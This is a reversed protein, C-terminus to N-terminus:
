SSSTRRPFGPRFSRRLGWFPDEVITGECQAPIQELLMRVPMLGDKEGQQLVEITQEFARPTQRLRAIYDKYHKVSDLPVVNPLDALSNHIGQMQSLPMEYTKLAFDAMRDDLEHLLLDHSLQDQEPLGEASIAAIKARYGRDAANQRVSDAISYDDLLNNARYEGRATESEPSGRMDDEFQERFLANQAAVRGAVSDAEASGRFDMYPVDAGRAVGPAGLGLVGVFLGGWFLGGGGAVNLRSPGM